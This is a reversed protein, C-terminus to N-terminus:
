CLTFTHLGTTVEVSHCVNRTNGLQRLRTVLIMEQEQGYVLTDPLTAGNSVGYHLTDALLRLTNHEYEIRAYQNISTLLDRTKLVTERLAEGETLQRKSHTSLDESLLVLFIFLAISLALISVM